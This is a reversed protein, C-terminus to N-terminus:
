GLSGSMGSSGQGPSPRICAASLLQQGQSVSQPHPSCANGVRKLAKGPHYPPPSACQRSPLSGPTRPPCPTLLLGRGAGTEWSTYHPGVRGQDCVQM